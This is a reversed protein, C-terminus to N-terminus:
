KGMTEKREAQHTDRMRRGTDCGHVTKRRETQRSQEDLSAARDAGLVTTPAQRHTEGFRPQDGGYM